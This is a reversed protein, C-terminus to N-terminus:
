KLTLITHEEVFSLVANCSASQKHFSGDMIFKHCSYYFSCLFQYTQAATSTEETILKMENM